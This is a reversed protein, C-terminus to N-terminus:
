GLGILPWYQSVMLLVIFFEIVTVCVGFRFFDRGSFYGYSYGLISVSSQYVFIKCAGAFTWIM